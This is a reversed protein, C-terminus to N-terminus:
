GAAAKRLSITGNSTRLKIPTGGHGLRGRLRGVEDGARDVLDLENRIVGNDVRVDIDADSERPLELVIRGNSTALVVGETGLGELDAHIVGNSTSADVSGRHEELEIKGNSSRALLRGCTCGCRVKANATTVDIDGVVDRIHISGNSSRAKVPGRLGQLCLKGNSSVVSVQLDSPVLVEVHCIGHRNWKRPIEVELELTGGADASALRISSLLHKAAEESEARVTKVYNVQIDTRDQGIVRTKGNANYVSIARGAPVAFERREEQSATESWPIGSFLSRLLGGLGGEHSERHSERDSGNMRDFRATM